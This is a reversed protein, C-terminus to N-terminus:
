PHRSWREFAKLCEMGEKFCNELLEIFDMKGPELKLWVKHLEKARTRQHPLEESLESGEEMDSKEEQEEEVEEELELHCLPDFFPAIKGSPDLFFRKV